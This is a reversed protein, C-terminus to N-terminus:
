EDDDPGGPPLVVDSSSPTYDWRDCEKAHNECYDAYYRLRPVIERFTHGRHRLDNIFAFIEKRLQDNEEIDHLDILGRADDHNKTDKNM